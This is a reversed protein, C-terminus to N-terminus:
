YLEAKSYITISCKPQEAWLYESAIDLIQAKKNESHSQIVSWINFLLHVSDIGSKNAPNYSLVKSLAPCRQM